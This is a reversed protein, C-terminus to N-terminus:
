KSMGKNLQESVLINSTQLLVGLYVINISNIYCNQCKISYCQNTHDYVAKFHIPVTKLEIVVASFFLCSDM